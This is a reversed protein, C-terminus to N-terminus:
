GVDMSVIGCPNEEEDMSSMNCQTDLTHFVSMEYLHHNFTMGFAFSQIVDIIGSITPKVQM